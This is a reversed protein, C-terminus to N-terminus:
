RLGGGLADALLMTSLIVLAVISIPLPFLGAYASIGVGVMGAISAGVLTATLLGGLVILVLIIGMGLLVQTGADATSLDDM